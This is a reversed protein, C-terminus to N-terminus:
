PIRQQAMILPLLPTAHSALVLATDASLSPMSSCCAVTADAAHILCLMLLLRRCQSSVNSIPQQRLAAVLM